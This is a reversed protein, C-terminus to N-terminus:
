IDPIMPTLDVAIMASRIDGLGFCAKSYYYWPEFSDPALDICVKAIKAAFEYLEIACM